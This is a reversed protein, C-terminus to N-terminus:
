GAAWTGGCVGWDTDVPSVTCESCYIKYLISTNDRIQRLDLRVIYNQKYSSIGIISAFMNLSYTSCKATTVQTTFRNSQCMISFHLQQLPDRQNPENVLPMGNHKILTQICEQYKNGWHTDLTSIGIPSSAPPRSVYYLYDKERDERDRHGTWDQQRPWPDGWQQSETVIHETEM